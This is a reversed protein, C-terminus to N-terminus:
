PAEMAYTGTDEEDDADRAEHARSRDPFLSAVYVQGEPREVFAFAGSPALTAHRAPLAVAGDPGRLIGTLLMPYGIADERNILAAPLVLPFQETTDALVDTSQTWDFVLGGLVARLELKM